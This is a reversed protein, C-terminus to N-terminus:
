ASKFVKESFLLYSVWSKYPKSDSSWIPTLRNNGDTLWNNEEYDWVWLGRAKETLRHSVIYTGMCWTGVSLLREGALWFTRCDQARSQEGWLTLILDCLTFNFRVFDHKGIDRVENDDERSLFYIHRFIPVTSCSRWPISGRNNGHSKDVRVESRKCCSGYEAMNENTEVEGQQQNERSSVAM